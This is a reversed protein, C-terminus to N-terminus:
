GDAGRQFAQLLRALEPGFELHAASLRPDTRYLEALAPPPHAVHWLPGALATAVAVLRGAQQPSLEPALAQVAAAATQVAELVALKFRHVVEVPAERELLVPTQALLDCLLPHRDLTRSLVDAAGGPSPGAAAATLAAAWAQWEQRCLELLLSERDEFYRLVASKHLGTRAAVATLTVRRVGDTSAVERAASLMASRRQAKDDASRARQFTV